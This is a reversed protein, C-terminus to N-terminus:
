EIAERYARWLPEFSREFRAFRGWPAGLALEPNEGWAPGGRADPEGALGLWFRASSRLAGAEAHRDVERYLPLAAEIRGANRYAHATLLAAEIMALRDAPPREGGALASEVRVAILDADELRNREYLTRALMRMLQGRQRELLPSDIVQRLGRAAEDWREEVFDARALVARWADSEEDPEELAASAVRRALAVEGVALSSRALPLAITQAGAAGFRRSIARYVNVALWPLELREFCGGLRAFPAPASAREILIGYRGGLGRVLESCAEDSGDPASIRALLADVRAGFRPTIAPDIGEYALRTAVALAGDLDGRHELEAMLVGLAYRRLGRRQDRVTKLLLDLRQDPSGSAAGLDIARIAALAGIPDARRRGTIKALRKRAALPAEYFVDLDAMRIDAMDRVDRPPGSELFRELWSVARAADGADLAAEAARLAWGASSAGFASARPLLMEYEDSVQEIKGADFSLDTLRLRAAIALRPRAGNAIRRFALHADFARGTRYLIEARWFAIEAAHPERKALQDFLREARVLQATAESEREMLVLLRALELRACVGATPADIRRVLARLREEVALQDERTTASRAELGLGLVALTPADAGDLGRRWDALLTRAERWEGARAAELVPDLAPDLGAPACLPVADVVPTRLVDGALVDYPSPPVDIPAAAGSLPAVLGVVYLAVVLAGVLASM